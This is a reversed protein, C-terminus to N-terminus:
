QIPEHTSPPPPEFKKAHSPTAHVAPAGIVDNEKVWPAVLSM